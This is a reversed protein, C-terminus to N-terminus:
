AMMTAMPWRLRPATKVALRVRPAPPNPVAASLRRMAVATEKDLIISKMDRKDIREAMANCNQPTFNVSHTHNTGNNFCLDAIANSAIGPSSQQQKHQSTGLATVNKIETQQPPWSVTM